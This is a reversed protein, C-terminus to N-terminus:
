ASLKAVPGKEITLIGSSYFDCHDVAVHKINTMKYKLNTIKNHFVPSLDQESNYKLRGDAAMHCCRQAMRTKWNADVYIPVIGMGKSNLQDIVPRGVGNYEGYIKDYVVSDSDLWAGLADIQKSYDGQTMFWQNWYFSEGLESHNYKHSVTAVTKDIAGFDLGITIEDQLNDPIRAYKGIRPILLHESMDLEQCGYHANFEIPLMLRRQKEVVKIYDPKDIVVRDWPCNWVFNGDRGAEERSAEGWSDPAGGIGISWILGNHFGVFPTINATIYDKVLRQKEDFILVHAHHGEVSADPDGSICSITGKNEIVLEHKSRTPHKVGKWKKMWDAIKLVVSMIHKTQDVKPACLVIDWRMRYALFYVLIGMIFSKGSQRTQTCDAYEPMQLLGQAMEEQFKYLVIKLVVLFKLFDKWLEEKNLSRM